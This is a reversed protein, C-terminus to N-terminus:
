QNGNASEKNLRDGPRITITIEKPQGMDLWLNQDLKMRTSRVGAESGSTFVPGDDPVGLPATEMTLITRSKRVVVEDKNKIKHKKSGV